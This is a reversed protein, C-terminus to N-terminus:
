VYHRLAESTEESSRGALYDVVAHLHAQTHICYKAVLQPINSWEEITGWIMPHELPNKVTEKEKKLEEVYKIIPDKALQEEIVNRRLEEQEAIRAEEAEKELREKEAKPDVKKGPNDVKKRNSM